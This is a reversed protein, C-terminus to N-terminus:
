STLRLKVLGRPNSTGIGPLSVRELPGTRVVGEQWPDRDVKSLFQGCSAGIDNGPPAYYELGGEFGNDRMRHFFQDVKESRQLDVDNRESYRLVKLNVPTGRLLQVLCKADAETDNDGALLTYHAEVANGTSASYETVLQVAEDLPLAAPMLHKRISQRASHLSWHFKFNLGSTLVSDTFERMRRASPIISAVAFRVQQYGAYKTKIAKASELVGEINMLPEGSGMYSILLTSATHMPSLFQEAHFRNVFSVIEAATLNDSPYGQGTLHCFKCGLNCSTQTPVCFIDKGDSKDIYSVEILRDLEKNLHIQKVTKDQQSRVTELKEWM